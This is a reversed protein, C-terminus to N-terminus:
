FFRPELDPPLVYAELIALEEATRQLGPRQREVDEDGWLCRAQAILGTVIDDATRENAM